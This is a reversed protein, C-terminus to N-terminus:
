NPNPLKYKAINKGEALLVGKDKLYQIRSYEGKEVDKWFKGGDTSQYIDGAVAWANRASVYTVDEVFANGIPPPRPEWTKGANDTFFYGGPGNTKIWGVSKDLFRVEIATGSVGQWDNLSAKMWRAGGDDSHLISFGVAWIDQSSIPWVDWLPVRDEPGVYLAGWSAGGNKTCFIVPHWSELEGPISPVRLVQGVFWGSDRDLFRVSRVVVHEFAHKQWSAGGDTSHVLYSGEVAWCETPSVINVREFLDQAESSLIRVRPAARIEKWKQGGDDTKWLSHATILAGHTEDLFDSDRVEGEIVGSAVEWQESDEKTTAAPTSGGQSLTRILSDFGALALLLVIYYVFQPKKMTKTLAM